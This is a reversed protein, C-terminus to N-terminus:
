VWALGQMVAPQPALNPDGASLAGTRGPQATKKNWKGWIEAGPQPLCCPDAIVQQWRSPAASPFPLVSVDGHEPPFSKM